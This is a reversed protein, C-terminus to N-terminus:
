EAAQAIEPQEELEEGLAEIEALANQLHQQIASILEEPEALADEPDGSTDRLWAINLNDGRATIEERSFRRFRGDEGQDARASQGNPDAGYAAEFEAFHEAM